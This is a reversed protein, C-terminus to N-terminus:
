LGLDAIDYCLDTIVFTHSKNSKVNIPAIFIGGIGLRNEIQYNLGSFQEILNDHILSFPFSDLKTGAIFPAWAEFYGCKDCKAIRLFRNIEVRREGFPFPLKITWNKSKVLDSTRNTIEDYFRLKDIDLLGFSSRGNYVKLVYNDVRFVVSNTGEAIKKKDIDLRCPWAGEAEFEKSM